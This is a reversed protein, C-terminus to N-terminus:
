SATLPSGTAALVIWAGGPRLLMDGGSTAAFRTPQGAASRLWNGDIRHGDRFLVARGGGVSHTYAAPSGVRDVDGSDTSVRCFQVLVNPTAVPHGDADRVVAGGVTLQWRGAAADWRFAIRTGGVLASLRSVAPAAALRPDAPAWRFGVDRVAAAGGVQGSLRALDVVLNYPAPRSTVRSYGVPHAGPSADVLTSSRVSAVVNAAGGSFALAIPGYQALLEPDSRRVSRVPGTRAPRHSAYVAVLRTLGGEVQEVYVVDAQNIGWQPRAAATNDVKVALVPGAPLGPLGTLPNVAAATPSPAPTPAPAPPSGGCAALLSGVALAAAAALAAVPPRYRSWARV